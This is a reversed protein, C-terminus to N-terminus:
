LRNPFLVLLIYKIEFLKQTPVRVTQKKYGSFGANRHIQAHSVRVLHWYNENTSSEFNWVKNPTQHHGDCVREGRGSLGLGSRVHM